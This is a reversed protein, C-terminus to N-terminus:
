GNKARERWGLAASVAIGGLVIGCLSGLGSVFADSIQANRGPIWLQLIEMLSALFTLGVAIAIRMSWSWFGLALIAATLCYALFHEAGGPLGTHPRETGPILSLILILIIGCLGAVRFLRRSLMALLFDQM